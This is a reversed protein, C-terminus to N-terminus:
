RVNSLPGFTDTDTISGRFSDTRELTQESQSNAKIFSASSFYYFM